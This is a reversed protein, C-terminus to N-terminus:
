QAQHTQSICCKLTTCKKRTTGDETNIEFCSKNVSNRAVPFAETNVADTLSPCAKQSGGHKKDQVNADLEKTNPTFHWEYVADPSAFKFFSM